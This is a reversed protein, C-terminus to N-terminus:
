ILPTPITQRTAWEFPMGFSMKTSSASATSSPENESSQMLNHIGEIRKAAGRLGVEAWPVDEKLHVCM